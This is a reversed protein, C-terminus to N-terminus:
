SKVSKKKDKNRSTNKEISKIEIIINLKVKM